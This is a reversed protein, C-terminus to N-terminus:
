LALVPCWVGVDVVAGAQKLEVHEGDLTLTSRWRAVVAAPRIQLGARSMSFSRCFRLLDCSVIMLCLTLLLLLLHAYV